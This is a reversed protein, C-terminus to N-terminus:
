RAPQNPQRPQWAPVLSAFLGVIFKEVHGIVSLERTAIPTSTTTTSTTTNTTSSSTSSTSSSSEPKSIETTKPPLDLEGLKSEDTSKSEPPNTTTTTTTPAPGDQVPQQKQDGQAERRIRRRPRQAM